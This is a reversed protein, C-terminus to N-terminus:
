TNAYKKDIIKKHLLYSLELFSKVFTKGKRVNFLGLKCFGGLNGLLTNGVIFRSLTYWTNISEIQNASIEVDRGIIKKTQIFLFTGGRSRKATPATERKYRNAM